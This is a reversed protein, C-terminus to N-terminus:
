RMEQGDHNEEPAAARTLLVLRDLTYIYNGREVDFEVQEEQYIHGQQSACKISQDTAEHHLVHTSGPHRERILEGDFSDADIQCAQRNKGIERPPSVDDGGEHCSSDRLADLINSCRGIRPCTNSM